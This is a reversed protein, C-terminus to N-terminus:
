SGVRSFASKVTRGAELHDLGARNAAEIIMAAGYPKSLQGNGILEAVRCSAWFLAANRRGKPAAAITRVLGALQAAIHDTPRQWDARPCRQPAPKAPPVLWEPWEALAADSLVPLGCAPWFIIAGGEARVDIGPAIRATSCRL